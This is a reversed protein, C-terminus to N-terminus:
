KKGEHYLRLCVTCWDDDKTCRVQKSTLSIGTSVSCVRKSEVLKINANACM